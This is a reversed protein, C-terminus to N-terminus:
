FRRFRRHCVTTGSSVWAHADLGNPVAQDKRVGLTLEAPHGGARLLRYAVVAQPLCRSGPVTRAARSIARRVAAPFGDGRRRGAPAAELARRLSPFGSIAIRIRAAVLLGIARVSLALEDRDLALASRLRPLM